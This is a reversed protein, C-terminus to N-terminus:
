SAIIVVGIARALQDVTYNAREYIVLPEFRRANLPVGEGPLTVRRLAPATCTTLNGEADELASGCVKAYPLNRPNQRYEEHEGACHLCRYVATRQFTSTHTDYDMVWDPPKDLAAHILDAHEHRVPQAVGADDLVQIVRVPAAPATTVLSLANLVETTTATPM